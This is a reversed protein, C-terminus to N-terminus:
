FWAGAKVTADNAVVICQRGSIYGIIVVVGASPCGGVEEYMGDATFAGVEFQAADKDLLYAIRERALMKGKEKQKDANKKGGGASVEKMKNQLKSILTKYSDENKNFELDTKTTM